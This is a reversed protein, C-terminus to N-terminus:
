SGVDANGSIFLVRWYQAQVINDRVYLSWLNRRLLGFAAKCFWDGEACDPLNATM